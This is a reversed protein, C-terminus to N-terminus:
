VTHLLYLESIACLTGSHINFSWGVLSMKQKRPSLTEECLVIVIVEQYFVGAACM